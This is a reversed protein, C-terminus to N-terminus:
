SKYETWIVVSPTVCQGCPMSAPYFNAEGMRLGARGELIPLKGHDNSEDAPSSANHGDSGGIVGFRYPNFGENHSM